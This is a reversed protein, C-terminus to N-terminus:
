QTITYLLDISHLGTQVKSYDVIKFSIIIKHGEYRGSGTYCTGINNILIRPINTVKIKSNPIGAKGKAKGIYSSADIELEMGKPVSGNAIEVSISITPDSPDVLTTYNLWQSDDIIIQKSDGQNYSPKFDVYKPSRNSLSISNQAYLCGQLLLIILLVIIYPKNM